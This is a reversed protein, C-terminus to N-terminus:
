NASYTPFRTSTSSNSEDTNPQNYQYLSTLNSKYYSSQNGISSNFTPMNTTQQPIFEPGIANVNYYNNTNEPM